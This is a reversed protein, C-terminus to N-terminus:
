ARGTALVFFVDAATRAGGGRAAEHGDEGHGVGVRDHVRGRDELPEGLRRAGFRRYWHSEEGGDGTAHGALLEGLHALQAGGAGDAEAFVAARQGGGSERTASQLVDLHAPAEDGDVGLVVREHLATLHM